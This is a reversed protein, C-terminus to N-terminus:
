MGAGVYRALGRRWLEGRALELLAISVLLVLVGRPFASPDLRGLFLEVPACVAWYPFCWQFAERLADPMISVPVLVGAVFSFVFSTMAFLTWVVDLWFALTNVLFCVLFYCYSGLLVLVLAQAFALASVPHPWFEPALWAGACWLAAAVGGQITLHQAFRALALVYFRVPMVLYKTVYGRFVQDALDLGRQHFLLKEFAAALILYRAFGDADYGGISRSEGALLARYVFIMVLPRWVGRMVERVVFGVRWTTVKRLEYAWATRLLRADRALRSAGVNLAESV